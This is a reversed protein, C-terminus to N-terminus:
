RFSFRKDVLGIASIPLGCLLAFFLASDIEKRLFLFTIVLFWIIAIAIGGGLPTPISHSSRENPLDLIFRNRAWKRVFYTFGITVFLIVSCFVFIDM